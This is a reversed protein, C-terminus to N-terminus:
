HFALASRVSPPLVRELAFARSGKLFVAGQHATVLSAAAELTDAATTRVGASAIGALISPADGGFAVV